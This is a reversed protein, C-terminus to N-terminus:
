LNITAQIPFNISGLLKLSEHIRKNEDDCYDMIGFDFIYGDCPSTNRYLIHDLCAYYKSTTSGSLNLEKHVDKFNYDLENFDTNFSGMILDIIDEDFTIEKLLNNLQLEKINPIEDLCISYIRILKGTKKHLLLTKVCNNNNSLSNITFFMNNFSEKKVFIVVSNNVINLNTNNYENDYCNSFGNFNDLIDKLYNYEIKDIFQFCFVDTNNKMSNVFCVLIKKREEIANQSSKKSINFSIINLFSM